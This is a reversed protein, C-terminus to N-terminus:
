VASDITRAVYWELGWYLFLKSSINTNFRDNYNPVFPYTNGMCVQCGPVGYIFVVYVYRWGLHIRALNWTYIININIGRVLLLIVYFVCCVDGPILKRCVYMFVYSYAHTTWMLGNKRSTSMWCVWHGEQNKMRSLYLSQPWLVVVSAAVNYWTGPLCCYYLAMGWCMYMCWRGRYVRFLSFHFVFFCLIYMWGFPTHRMCFIRSRLYRRSNNVEQSVCREADAGEGM